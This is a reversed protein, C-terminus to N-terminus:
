VAAYNNLNITLHIAFIAADNKIDLTHDPYLLELQRRVNALGIKEEANTYNEGPKSNEVIFNLMGNQLSANISIFSNFRSEGAGHKFANEVFPLLILPAVPQSYNDVSSTCTFKLKDPTYRLKELETYSEIMKLEDGIPIIKKEAEYLMFRLLGSLRMVVDATADSKKRALAYINNLTNFLFHPNTQAKLFRLETELKQRTIEHETEKQRLTVRALKFALALGCTFCLVFFTYVISMWQISFPSHINLILNEAVFHDIVLMLLIGAAFALAATIISRKFTWRSSLANDVIFFLTYVLPVKVTLYVLQIQLGKLFVEAPTYSIYKAAIWDNNIYTKFLVYCVWFITHLLFKKYATKHQEKKLMHLFSFNIQFLLCIFIFLSKTCVSHLKYPYFVFLLATQQKYLM